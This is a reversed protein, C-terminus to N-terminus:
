GKLEQDGSLPWVYKFSGAASHNVTFNTKLSTLPVCYIHLFFTDNVDEFPDLIFLRSSLIEVM